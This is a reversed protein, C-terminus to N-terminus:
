ADGVEHVSDHTEGADACEDDEANALPPNDRGYLETLERLNALRRQLGSYDPLRWGWNGRARGPRNMRAEGDLGLVDQVPACALVSVSSWALRLMDWHITSPSSRAYRRVHNRTERSQSSYWGVTTDNDHTGTYIMSNPIVNHPLYPNSSDDGFAFQLVKMGPYGLEDRLEEVDPTIMGLDEVVIPIRGIEREVVTFFDLGPGDVWEGNIANPAGAPVQWGAAFGRFHDIRVIDTLALTREIRQRWWNFDDSAMTDWDYVPNGWLQGTRSFLDPPVGAQVEQNGHEDILFQDQNAWVEASDLAVYIPVDGMVTVGREAAYEKLQKWQRDFVFQVFRQYAIEDSLRSRLPAVAEPHGLRLEEDWQYWPEGGRFERIAQYLAYDEVWHRSARVFREYDKQLDVGKGDLFRNHAIRLRRTKWPMVRGFEVKSESFRTTPPVDRVDLLGDHVLDTLSILLPNGAFSSRSDYPSNGAGAPGLPLVQWLHQGSADLLRVFERATDGLDGVGHPGPLSTIHMLLGSSRQYM